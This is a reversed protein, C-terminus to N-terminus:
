SMFSYFMATVFTSVVTINVYLLAVRKPTNSYKILIKKYKERHFIFFYNMVIFPLTFSLLFSLSSDFPPFFNVILIPYNFVEFYKLWLLVTFANLSNVFTILVFIKWKWSHDESHERIGSLASAWIQYYM